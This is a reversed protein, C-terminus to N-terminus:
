ANINNARLINKQYSLAVAKTIECNGVLISKYELLICVNSDTLLRDISILFGLNM